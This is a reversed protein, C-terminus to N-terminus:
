LDNQQAIEDLKSISQANDKFTERAKKLASAADNKRELVIYSRILQLWGSLNNPDSELRAALGDVMSAILENRDEENFNSIEEVDEATPGKTEDSTTEEAVAEAKLSALTQQAVELWPPNQQGFRDILIEWASIAESRKQDQSLAIAEFFFGTADRPENIQAQRFLTLAEDGVIGQEKQTLVQGLGNQMVGTISKDDAGISLAKRFAEEAKDLKGQRQYVPAITQWGRVDDPNNALHAEVQAVLTKIDPVSPNGAEAEPGSAGSTAQVTPQNGGGSLSYFGVTALPILLIMLWPYIERRGAKITNPSPPTERDLALLRRGLEARASAEEDENILGRDRDRKIEELQDILILRTGENAEANLHEDNQKRVMPWLASAIAALTLLGALVWFFLPANELEM